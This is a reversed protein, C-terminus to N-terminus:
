PIFSLLFGEIDEATCRTCDPAVAENILVDGRIEFLYRILMIGDTGGDAVGNGDVDLMYGCGNLYAEIDEATCRTCDPAVAENILADGRIEFLYRILMIGDTGGDAAGNGDVDLNCRPIDIVSGNGIFGYGIHGTIKSVNVNTSVEPADDKVNFLLKVLELPLPENPWNNNFPDSYSLIIIKDTNDDNDENNLDDQIQPDALKNTEFLDEFTNYELKTSDFHIRVALASLTNDNDSVDYNITLKLSSGMTTNLVNPKISIIQNQTNTFTGNTLNTVEEQYGNCDIFFVNGLTLQNDPDTDLVRFKLLAIIGTGEPAQDCDNYTLANAINITGAVNEVAQFGVTTGGNKKLLNEIGESPDEEVGEIFEVKETDFSVEVQYTDLNTVGQAVVAIWVEDNEPVSITSEIDKSLVTDDYNRTSLDMDLSLSGAPPPYTGSTITTQGSNITVTQNGSKTWGTAEKFSLSHSGVSLGSQTYGSNHWAGGDVRWQVGANIAAQPSITVKLSGTQQTYIGSTITTQGSTITVTQNGPKSWGTLAKFSLTHSGVSLESQTDESTHWAGGDVQWQAGANIAAQPSITVKLSGTPPIEVYTGTVTKTQNATVTVTQPNPTTYGSITGFTVTYSGANVTGSWSGTGKQVGNVSITGNVPTTTISLTGTPPIEIYTGTVTKTQNASVTVAQPDPKSWGTVEKFSLSHSGVSLESQTDESTHWAGGDVQWQAGANIAAQPSITVKLSGTPPIEVYTGTVTKTQNATVTVTQPNPTTYGSITGFTVTYSGANVTGSWSGTGKQVGNVSITGNVPTTTISLTGTPPIEIYTGTVTKTQNASVTVAQPDPKSWGTVEKFSLSHSGVSLESQTYGSNRWAGGDVQWQAGANIAAQPSITVKLSGNPAASITVNSNSTDTYFINSTSTVRVKASATPANPVTWNYSGDNSTSNTITSWSLGGNTSYDIKVYSGPNGSSSWTIYHSSGVQWNEGGNPSTVTISVPAATTFTVLGYDDSQKLHNDRHRVHATYTNNPSLVGSPVTIQTLHQQDWIDNNNWIYAGEKWIGWWSSEHTDGDPDSFASTELTPTLSTNLSGGQVWISPKDPPNNPSPTNFTISREPSSSFELSPINIPFQITPIHIPYSFPGVSIGITGNPTLGLTLTSRNWKVINSVSFSSGSMSVNKKEGNSCFIGRNTALRIGEIKNSASATLSAGVDVTAGPIGVVPCKVIQQDDFSDSLTLSQGLLHPTFAKEDAWRLDASGIWPLDGIYEFGFIVIKYKAWWQIGFDMLSAGSNGQFWLKKQDLDLKGSGGEETSALTGGVAGGIKIYGGAGGLEGGFWPIGLSYSPFGLIGNLSSHSKTLITGHAASSFVLLGLSLGAICLFLFVRRINIM